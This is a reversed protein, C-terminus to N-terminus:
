ERIPDIVITRNISRLRSTVVCKYKAKDSPRLLLFTIIQQDKSIEKRQDKEIESVDLKKGNKYRVFIIVYHTLSPIKVIYGENM